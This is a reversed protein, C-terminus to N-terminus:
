KLGCQKITEIPGQGQASQYSTFFSTELKKCDSDADKKRSSITNSYSSSVIEQPVYQNNSNTYAPFIVTNECVCTYDKKCSSVTLIKISLLCISSLRKM